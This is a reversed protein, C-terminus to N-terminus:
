SGNEIIGVHENNRARHGRIGTVICFLILKTLNYVIILQIVCHVGTSFTAGRASKIGKIGFKNEM